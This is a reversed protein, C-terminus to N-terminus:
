TRLGHPHRRRNPHHSRGGIRLPGSRPSTKGSPTRSGIGCRGPRQQRSCTRADVHVTVQVPPPTDSICIQALGMARRWGRDRPTEPHAALQDAAKSIAQDVITGTLGDLGGWLKWWSQDLSPQLILFQDDSSRQEHETEVTNATSGRTGGRGRRSTGFTRDQGPDQVSGRDPRFVGRNRPSRAPRTSGPDTAHDPGSEPGHGSECGLPFRGM